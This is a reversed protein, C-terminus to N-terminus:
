GVPLGVSGCPAVAVQRVGFQRTVGEARFAMCTAVRLQDDACGHPMRICAVAHDSTLAFLKKDGDCPMFAQEQTTEAM